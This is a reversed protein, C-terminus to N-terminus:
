ATATVTALWRARKIKIARVVIVLFAVAALWGLLGLLANPPDGVVIPLDIEYPQGELQMELRVIYKGPQKYVPSFKHLKETFRTKVPGFVVEKEGLNNRWVWADIPGPFVTAKNAKNYVYAHMQTLEDPVPKGPYGTMEVVYPGAAVKYTIVPAQPYNKSYAYHPIGMIHHAAPRDALLAVCALTLMLLRGHHGNM